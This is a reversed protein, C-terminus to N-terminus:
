ASAMVGATSVWTIALMALMMPMADGVMAGEEEVAVSRRVEEEEEEEEVAVVM